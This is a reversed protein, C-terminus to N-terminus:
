LTDRATLMLVPTSKRAERRLKRCVDLGDLGPLTLDLAIADYDHTTALHLGTVGDGAVDMTMGQAQLYEVVNIALDDHDEILLIYVAVIM